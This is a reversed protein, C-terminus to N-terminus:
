PKKPRYQRAELDLDDGSLKGILSQRGRHVHEKVTGVTAGMKDAIERETHEMAKLTLALRQHDPLGEIGELTRKVARSLDLAAGKDEPSTANEIDTEAKEGRDVRRSNPNRYSSIFTNNLITSVWAKLNTGAVFQKEHKALAKCLTEQALDEAEAKNKTLHRASRLLKPMLAVLKKNFDEAGTASAGTEEQRPRRRAFNEEM